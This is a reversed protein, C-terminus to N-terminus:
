PSLRPPFRDSIPAPIQDRQESTKRGERPTAGGGRKPLHGAEVATKSPSFLYQELNPKERERHREPHM